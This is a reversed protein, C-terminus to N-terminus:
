KPYCQNKRKCLAARASAWEYNENSTAENMALKWRESAAQWEKNIELNVARQAINIYKENSM